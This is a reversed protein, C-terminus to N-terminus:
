VAEPKVAGAWVAVATAGGEAVADVWRSAEAQTLGAAVLAGPTGLAAQLDGLPRKGALPVLARALRYRARADAVPTELQVRFLVSAQCHPCTRADTAILEACRPCPFPDTTTM